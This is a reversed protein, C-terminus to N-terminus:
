AFARRSEGNNIEGSNRREETACAYVSLAKEAQTDFENM